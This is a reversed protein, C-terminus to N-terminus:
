TGRATCTLHRLEHAVSFRVRDGPRGAVVVMVARERDAGAWLSYADHADARVPSALVLVGHRELTRILKRIPVDPSIGLASRMSRAADPPPEEIRPLSLPPQRLRKSLKETLEFALQGWRYAARRERATMAVRSRFLLSGFTFEPPDDQTFHAIPLGTHLSI